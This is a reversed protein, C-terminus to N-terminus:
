EQIISDIQNDSIDECVWDIDEFDYRQNFKFGKDTFVEKCFIKMSGLITKHNEWIFLVDYGAELFPQSERIEIQEKNQDIDDLGYKLLHWYIGNCLVVIKHKSSIFDPSRNNILLSGDGIYKYQNPFLRELFNKCALEFNNPKKCVAKLLAKIMKEAFDKNRWKDKMHISNKIGINRKAEESIYFGRKITTEKRSIIGKRISELSSKYGLHSLSQKKRAELSMKKGTRAILSNRLAKDSPPIGKKLISLKERFKDINEKSRNKWWLKIGESTAKRHEASLKKGTLTASIKKATERTYIRRRNAESIKRRAEETHKRGTNKLRLKDKAEASHHSGKRM